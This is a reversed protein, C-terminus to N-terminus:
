IFLTACVDVNYNVIEILTDSRRGIIEVVERLAAENFTKSIRSPNVARMAYNSRNQSNHEVASQMTISRYFVVDVLSSIPLVDAISALASYEGLSHSAFASDRQILGKLCM